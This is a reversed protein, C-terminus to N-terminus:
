CFWFLCHQDSHDIVILIIFDGNDDDFITM